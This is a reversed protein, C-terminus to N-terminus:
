DVTKLLLLALLGVHLAFISQFLIEVQERKKNRCLEQKKKELRGAMVKFSNFSVTFSTDSISKVQEYFEIWPTSRSKRLLSLEYITGKSIQSFKPNQSQASAGFFLDVTLGIMRCHEEPYQDANTAMTRCFRFLSFVLLLLWYENVQVICLM